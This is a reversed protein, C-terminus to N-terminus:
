GRAFQLTFEMHSKNSYKRVSNRAASFNFLVVMSPKIRTCIISNFILTLFLWQYYIFTFVRNYVNPM